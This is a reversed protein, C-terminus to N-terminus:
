EILYYIHILVLLNIVRVLFTKMRTETWLCSVLKVSSRNNLNKTTISRNKMLWKKHSSFFTDGFNMENRVATNTQKHAADNEKM